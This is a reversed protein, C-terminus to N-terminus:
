RPQVLPHLPRIPRAIWEAVVLNPVWCLWAILPYASEFPIGAAIAAPIYLRLTVAAFTLAFNRIMWRRHAAVNGRRICAYAMAGSALWAISLLSFGSRSVAGGFASQALYLGSLAGVLVGVGLYTRGLWRHLAPRLTRLRAWFQFPGIALAIAAAFVHAYVGFRHAQFGPKMDPHVMSGLPLLAYAAVAYAAVAIPLVYLGLLRFIGTMGIM